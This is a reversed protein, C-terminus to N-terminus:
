SRGCCPRPTRPAPVAPPSSRRRSRL